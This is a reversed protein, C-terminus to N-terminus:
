GQARRAQERIGLENLMRHLNNPHVGLLEAARTHKGEAAQFTSLIIRRRAELLAQKYPIPVAEGDRSAALSDPLDEVELCPSAGAIM